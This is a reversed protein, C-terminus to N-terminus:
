GEKIPDTIVEHAVAKLVQERILDVAKPTARLYDKVAEQGQHKSGDPLTYFSGKREILDFNNATTLADTIQDIGVPGYQETATNFFTLLATRKPPALKNKEVQVAVQQGVQVRTDKIETKSGIVYSESGKRFHLRHTTVHALAFGGGRTTQPARPGGGSINARVQNIIAVAVGHRPADAAMLKVMRTVIKAVLGVTAEDADKEKEARAIMAGVSDLVVFNCLGSTTMTKAIDAVDEANDPQALLVRETDVGHLKAWNPDWTKEVDIWGQMKDPELRQAQAITCLLLTSKGLQEMGWLEAVRGKVLGGCGLAADLAISGTPIVELKLDDDQKLTGEGFSKAFGARFKELAAASPGAAKTAM